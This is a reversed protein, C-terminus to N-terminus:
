LNRAIYEVVPPMVANGLCRYRATDSIGETWGDPFGLLREVELPTFRRYRKGDFVCSDTPRTTICFAPEGEQKIARGNKNTQGASVALISM